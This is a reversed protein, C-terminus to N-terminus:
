GASPIPRTRPASLARCSNPFKRITCHNIQHFHRLAWVADPLTRLPQPDSLVRAQSHEECALLTAPEGAAAYCCRALFPLSKLAPTQSKIEFGSYDQAKEQIQRSQRCAACQSRRYRQQQNQPISPPVSCCQTGGRFATRHSREAVCPMRSQLKASSAERIRLFGPTNALIREKAALMRRKL